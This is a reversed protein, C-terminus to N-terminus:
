GRLAEKGPTRPNTHPGARVCRYHGSRPCLYYDRNMGQALVSGILSRRRNTSVASSRLDDNALRQVAKPKVPRTDADQRLYGPGAAAPEDHEEPHDLEGGVREPPRSPERHHGTTRCSSTSGGPRTPRWAFSCTPSTTSPTSATRRAPPSPRTAALWTRAPRTTESSCSTKGASRVPAPSESPLTTTSLYTRIPL